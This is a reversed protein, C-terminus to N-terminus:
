GTVKVESNLWVGEIDDPLRYAHMQHMFVGYISKQVAHVM